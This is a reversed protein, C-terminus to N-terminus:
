GDTVGFRNFKFRNRARATTAQKSPPSMSHSRPSPRIPNRRAEGVVSATGAPLQFRHLSRVALRQGALAREITKLV